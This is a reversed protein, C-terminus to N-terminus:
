RGASLGRVTRLFAQAAMSGVRLGARAPTMLLRFIRNDLLRTLRRPADLFDLAHRTPPTDVVILEFAGSAHLEYLKEMAMYEQTGSLSGAVNRYFRNDLIRAAQVENEAYQMVLQDFTSKTDLMLAHLRGVGAASGERDWRERELEHPTNSLHDLGLAHALRKAPDITVVVTNRGRRAGEIALAAATTTKGVGGTGCCVVVRRHDVIAGLGPGSVESQESWEAAGSESESPESRQATGSESCPQAANGARPETGSLEFPESWEAAGSESASPDSRQATGSESCPQAANGARPETGSLEFPESWEAAGSESRPETGSVAGRGPSRPRRRRRAVLRRAPRDGRARHGRHVPVAAPDAPATPAAALRESQDHQRRELDLRFEAAAALTAPEVGPSPSVEGVAVPATVLGPITAVRGNVVVPGLAVGARDEIAFATEVLENVPTEEPVTVLMVQCRKPDTLLEVVDTAQKRVPGVRVADLLGRASLLFTVAHGAAPADILILDAAGARELQKVKGLVLIDKMGPVATAVVELAGSGALRKGIRRLGHDHLYEVLADDPTLTRARVGPRLEAEDYTLSPRGFCGALGSKGEVEVILVSMGARAAAVAFAATVTTKGVGGKGAVIVVRSTASFRELDM